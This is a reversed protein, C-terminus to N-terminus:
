CGGAEYSAFFAALDAGTIGGDLDIDACSAGSELEAIFASIDGPTVGGDQDYDAPCSSCTPAGNIVTVEIPRSPIVGCEDTIVCRFKSGSLSSAYVPDLDIFFTDSNAGNSEGLAVVRDSGALYFTGDIVDTWVYPPVRSQLQWQYHRGPRLPDILVALTLDDDTTITQDSSQAVISPCEIPRFVLECSAAASHSAGPANPLALGEVNSDIHMTYDGPELTWVLTGQESTLGFPGGLHQEFITAGTSTRLTWNSSAGPGGGERIASHAYNMTAETLADVRFALNWTHNATTAASANGVGCDDSVLTAEAGTAISHAFNWLQTQGAALPPKIAVYTAVGSTASAHLSDGCSNVCTRGAAFTTDIANMSSGTTYFSPVTSTCIAFGGPCADGCTAQAVQTTNASSTWSFDLLTVEACAVSASAMAIVAASLRASGHSPVPACPRMLSKM